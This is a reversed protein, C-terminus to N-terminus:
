IFKVKLKLKLKVTNEENGSELETLHEGPIEIVYLDSSRKRWVRGKSDCLLGLIVLNFLFTDLGEKM